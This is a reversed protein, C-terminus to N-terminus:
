KCVRRHVGGRDFGSVGSHDSEPQVTKKKTAYKKGKKLRGHFPDSLDKRTLMGDGDVLIRAFEQRTYRDRERKQRKVECALATKRAQAVLKRKVFSFPFLVFFFCYRFFTEIFFAIVESCLMVLRGLTVRYILFGLGVCLVVSFRFKGNNLGYLLLILSIGAFLCFLLDEFFVIIGLARSEGRTKAGPILPLKIERLRRATRRSYHNGFFVRTIRLGDYIAGLFLGLLVAYLYLAGIAFQSIVM